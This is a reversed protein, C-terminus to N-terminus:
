IKYYQLSLWKPISLEGLRIGQGRGDEKIKLQIFTEGSYFWERGKFEWQNLLGPNKVM